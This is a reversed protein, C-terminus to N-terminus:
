AIFHDAQDVAWIAKEIDIPEGTYDALLRIREVQNLIRGLEIDVRGTTVLHQGFSAILGRHTRIKEPRIDPQTAILAVTAAEFMAYYARNCAGDTDGDALLLRASVLARRAKNLGADPTM